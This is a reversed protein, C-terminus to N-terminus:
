RGVGVWFGMMEVMIAACVMLAALAMVRETKEGRQGKLPEARVQWAFVFGYSVTAGLIGYGIRNGIAGICAAITNVLILGVLVRGRITLWRASGKRWGTGTMLSAMIGVAVGLRMLWTTDLEMGACAEQYRSVGGHREDVSLITKRWSVRGTMEYGLVGMSETMKGAAENGAAGELTRMPLSLDRRRPVSYKILM